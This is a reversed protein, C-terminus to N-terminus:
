DTLYVHNNVYPETTQGVNFAEFSVHAGQQHIISGNDIRFQRLNDSSRYTGSGPKGIERYGPGLFQEGSSLAESSSLRFSSKIDGRGTLTEKIVPNGGVVRGAGKTLLIEGAFIIGNGIMQDQEADNGKRFRNINNRAAVAADYAM